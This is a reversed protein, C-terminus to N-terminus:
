IDGYYKNQRIQEQMKVRYKQADTNSKVTGKGEIQQALYSDTQEFATAVTDLYDNFSIVTEEVTGATEKFGNFCETLKAESEDAVIMGVGSDLNLFAADFKAQVGKIKEPTIMRKTM